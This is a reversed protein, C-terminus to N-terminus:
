IDDAAHIKHSNEAPVTWTPKNKRGSIPRKRSMTNQAINENNSVLKITNRSIDCMARINGNLQGLNTIRKKSIIFM